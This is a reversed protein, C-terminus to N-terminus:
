LVGFGCRTDAGSRTLPLSKPPEYVGRELLPERFPDRRLAAEDDQVLVLDVLVNALFADARHRTNREQGAVAAHQADQLGATRLWRLITAVLDPKELKSRPSDCMPDLTGLATPRVMMRPRLGHCYRRHFALRPFCGLRRIARLVGEESYDRMLQARREGRNQHPRPHQLLADETGVLNGMPHFHDRPTRAALRLEDLVQEVHRADDRPFHAQLHSRDDDRRDNLPRHVDHPRGGVRLANAEPRDEVALDAGDQAVGLPELLDNRVQERIRDLERRLATANLDGQFPDVRVELDRHPVGPLADVRREQGVREFAEALGLPSRGARVTAESSAM